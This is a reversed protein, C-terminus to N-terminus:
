IARGDLVARLPDAAPLGRDARLKQEATTAMESPKDGFVARAWCLGLRQYSGLFGYSWEPDTSIGRTAAAMAGAADGALPAVVASFTAWVTIQPARHKGSLHNQTKRPKTSKSGHWSSKM